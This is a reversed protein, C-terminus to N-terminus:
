LDNYSILINDADILARKEEVLKTEEIFHNHGPHCMLEVTDCKYYNPSKLYEIYGGFAETTQFRNRYYRIVLERKLSRLPHRVKNYASEHRAIRVKSFGEERLVEQFLDQLGWITHVHHHSDCHSLTINYSKILRIQSILEEKIAKKLNVDFKGIKFIQKHVFIGNDGILGYQNLVQSKTVSEFESLCLHVGYSIEPHLSAFRKVEDLCQGNAM